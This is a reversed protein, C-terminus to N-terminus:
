SRARRGKTDRELVEGPEAGMAECLADLLGTDLTKIRGRARTWRYVTSMSIKGRTAVSLMYGTWGRDELLEPLRLRIAM